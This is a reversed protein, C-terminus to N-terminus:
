TTTTGHLAALLESAFEVDGDIACERRVAQATARGAALAYLTEADLTIAADAVDSPGGRVSLRGEATVLQYVEAGVRLECVRGPTVRSVGATAGTLVWAPRIADGPVAPPAHEIGWQRLSALTPKLAVGADTLEYVAVPTPPPLTRRAIIGCNQLERLRTALVNSGIGPLGDQLDSYRRPGPVLERVILLSWRDGVVDLGRALPCVQAYRKVTSITGSLELNSPDAQKNSTVNTANQNTGRFDGSAGMQLATDSFRRTASKGGLSNGVADPRYVPDPARRAAAQVDM